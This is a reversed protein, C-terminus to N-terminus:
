AESILASPVVSPRPLAFASTPFWMHESDVNGDSCLRAAAGVITNIHDRGAELVWGYVCSYVTYKGELGSKRLLPICIRIPIRYIGYICPIRYQVTPARSSRRPGDLSRDPSFSGLLHPPIYSVRSPGLVTQFLQTSQLPRPQMPM